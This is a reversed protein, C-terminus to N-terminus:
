EKKKHFQNHINHQMVRVGQCVSIVVPVTSLVVLKMWILHFYFSLTQRIQLVRSYWPHLNIWELITYNWNWIPKAKIWYNLKYSRMGTCASNADYALVDLKVCQPRSLIAAVKWVVIAFVNKSLFHPLKLEFKVSKKRSGLEYYDLKPESLPKAGILRSAM